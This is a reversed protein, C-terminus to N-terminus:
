GRPATLTAVAVPATSPLASPWSKLDVASGPNASFRSLVQTQNEFVSLTRGRVSSPLVMSFQGKANPWTVSRPVVVKGGVTVGVTLGSYVAAAFPKPAAIKYAANTGLQINLESSELRKFAVNSGAIGGYSTTGQAVGVSIMVPDDSTEDSATFFSSYYGKANSANSRTWFDRDQTRTIVVAGAVPQGAANTIRGTLDYTLLRVAPPAAKTSDTATGTLLVDGDAKVTAHLGSVAFASTFGGTASSVARKQGASLPKGGIKAGSLATVHIVHRTAVTNDIDYSFRGQADTAQPVAFSDVTVEAGVVPKGNWLLRGTLTRVNSSNAQWPVVVVAAPVQIKAVGQAPASAPHAAHRDQAHSPPTAASGHSRAAARKGLTLIVPASSQQSSGGLAFVQLQTAQGGGSSTPTGGVSIAVYEKGNVSYISAGSAIQHGTQFTWLIKGTSADFVRLVGDGGGDIGLGSATTTVGGREPQPTNDKWVPAGTALSVASISGYDKWGPPTSGFDGNGLGLFVDGLTFKDKKQAPTLIAQQEVSATEAAAEYVYGTGPDFSAPSYNFGGISGPYVTVPKGPQLNPHETHDLLKVQQYIPRGTKADYAFWLGEMTAVSVVREPKGNIKATYVVPPQATDYSWENFSLQQQWWDMKGTKLNVAILADARPDSGPRVSPFYLPTASGTGFYLTDTTPDITVPTWTVGGGALADYKRWETGQPPINWFPNSWAPRLNSTHYAEVFGRVGYESGAAGFVLLHHSCIPASTESYGYDVEADPVADSIPVERQLAGTSPDLSVVDMNLTLEFVHGDCLAVGRNAVQGFDSFVAENSPAWHWKVQGTTADLAWVNDNNTTMYLTGNAEVPYSQEGHRVTPDLSQFDVTFLRGLSSVNGPNIQTLPSYRNNDPTNGFGGWGVNASSSSQAGATGLGLGVLGLVALAM